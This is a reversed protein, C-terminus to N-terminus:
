QYQKADKFVRERAVAAGLANGFKMRIASTFSEVCWSPLCFDLKLVISIMIKLPTNRSVSIIKIFYLFFLLDLGFLYGFTVVFSVYEM